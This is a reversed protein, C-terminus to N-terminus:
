VILRRVPGGYLKLTGFDGSNAAIFVEGFAQYGSTALALFGSTTNNGMVLAGAGLSCSMYAKTFGHWRVTAFEGAQPKNQLIGFVNDASSALVGTLGVPQYQKASIDAGAVITVDLGQGYVSM